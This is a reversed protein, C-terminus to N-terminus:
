IKVALNHKTKPSAPENNIKPYSVIRGQPPSLFTIWQNEVSAPYNLAVASSHIPLINGQRDWFLYTPSIKVGENLKDFKSPSPEQAIEFQLYQQKEIKKKARQKREIAVSKLNSEINRILYDSKAQRYLSFYEKKQVTESFAAKTIIKAAKIISGDAEKVEMEIYMLLSKKLNEWAKPMSNGCADMELDICVARWPYFDGRDEEKLFLLSMEPLPPVSESTPIFLIKGLEVVNGHSVKVTRKV